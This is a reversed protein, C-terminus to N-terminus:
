WRAHPDLLWGTYVASLPDGAEGVVSYTMGEVEGAVGHGVAWVTSAGQLNGQSEWRAEFRGGEPSPVFVPYGLSFDWSGVELVSSGSGVGNLDADGNFNGTVTLRGVVLPNEGLLMYVVQLGKVHVNGNASVHTQGPTYDITIALNSVPVKQSAAVPSAWLVLAALPALMGLGAATLGFRSM